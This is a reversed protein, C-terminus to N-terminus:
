ECEILVKLKQMFRESMGKESPIHVFVTNPIKKLMHYYAANCLYATPHHSLSYPILKETCKRGFEAINFDTCLLDGHYEACAELRIQNSLNKDVGFMIVADYDGNVSSIDKHLGSFSNTLYLAEKEVGSVLQLSTNHIWKFATYLIKM